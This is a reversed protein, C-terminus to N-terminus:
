LIEIDAAKVWGVYDSNLRVKYWTVKGTADIEESVLLMKTGRTLPMSSPKSNSDPETLLEAKYAVLVCEERNDYARASAFSLYLFMLSFCLFVISSFFGVKRAAVMRAFIYLTLAGIFLIFSMAALIAWSNSTHDKALAKHLSEFFSEDDATVRVKKGRTEARNADEVKSQLYRLNNSITKNRPALRHAREYCIMADGIDNAKFYANGLNYLLEATYGDTIMAEKYQSIAENYDGAIYASDAREVEAPVDDARVGQATMALTLVLLARGMWGYIRRIRINM